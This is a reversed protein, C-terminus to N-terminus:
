QMQLVAMALISHVCCYPKQFTSFKRIIRFGSKLKPSIKNINMLVLVFFVLHIWSM